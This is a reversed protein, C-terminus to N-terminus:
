IIVHFYIVIDKLFLMVKWMVFTASVKDQFFSCLQAAHPAFDLCQLLSTKTKEGYQVCAADMNRCNLFFM